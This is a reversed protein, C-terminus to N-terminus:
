PPEAVFNVEVGSASGAPRGVAFTAGEMRFRLVGPGPGDGTRVAGAALLTAAFTPVEPEAGHARMGRMVGRLTALVAEEGESLVDVRGAAGPSRNDM